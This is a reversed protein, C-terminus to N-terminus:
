FAALQKTVNQKNTQLSNVFKAMTMLINKQLLTLYLKCLNHLYVPKFSYRQCYRFYGSSWSASVGRTMYLQSLSTIHNGVQNIKDVYTVFNSKCQFTFLTKGNNQETMLFLYALDESIGTISFSINTETNYQKGIRGSREENLILLCLRIKEGGTGYHRHHKRQKLKKKRIMQIKTTTKKNTKARIGEGM